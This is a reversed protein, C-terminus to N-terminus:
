RGDIVEDARLLVIEPVTIGRARATNLNLVFEFRTPQMVPLDAPKAGMLIRSIFTTALAIMEAQSPGYSVLGGADVGERFSHMSPLNHKQLLDVILKANLLMFTEDLFSVGDPRAGSFEAFAREIHEPESVEFGKARIGLSAAADRTQLFDNPKSRNLPNYLVAIQKLNPLVEQFVEVRKGSLDATICTVGTTNGGPRALSAVFGSTVADCAFMVIPVTKSVSQAAEIAEDGVAFLVDVKSDVLEGALAPLREHRGDAFRYDFVATKGDIYGAENMKRVFISPPAVRGLSLYGIRPLKEQAATSVDRDFVGLTSFFAGFLVLALQRM